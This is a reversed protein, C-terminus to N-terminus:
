HAPMREGAGRAAVTTPSLLRLVTEVIREIPARRRLGPPVMVRVLVAGLVVDFVDDPDISPDVTGAPAADLIARFQPRVSLRALSQPARTQGEDAYSALLVPLVARMIPTEFTKVYARVFRRLDRRLDGTARVRSPPFDNLVVDELLDLRSPWRRYIASTHVGAHDAIAQTTAAALGRELILERAAHITRADITEDRPRGGAKPSM